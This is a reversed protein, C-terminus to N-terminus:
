IGLICTSYGNESWMVNINIPSKNVSKAYGHFFIEKKRLVWNQLPCLILSSPNICFCAIIDKVNDLNVVMCLLVCEVAKCM